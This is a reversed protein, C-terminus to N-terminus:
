PLLKGLPAGKIKYVIPTLNAPPRETVSELTTVLHVHTKNDGQITFNINRCANGNTMSFQFANEGPVLPVIAWFIQGPLTVWNAGHHWLHNGAQEIRIKNVRMSFWTAFSLVDCRFPEGNRLLNGKSFFPEKYDIFPLWYNGVPDERIAVNIDNSVFREDNRRVKFDKRLHNSPYEGNHWIFILQGASKGERKRHLSANSSEGMKICSDVLWQPITKSFLGAYDSELLTEASKYAMAADDMEQDLLFLLGILAQAFPDAALFRSDVDEKNRPKMLEVIRRGEVIANELDNMEIYNIVKFYLVMFLDHMDDYSEYRLRIERPRKDDKLQYAREFYANSESYRSSLCLAQGFAVLRLFENKDHKARDIEESFVLQDGPDLGLKSVEQNIQAFSTIVHLLFATGLVPAKM